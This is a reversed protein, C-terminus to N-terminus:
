IGLTDMIYLLSSVEETVPLQLLTCYCCCGCCLRTRQAHSLSLSLSHSLPPPRYLRTFSPISQFSYLLFAFPTFFCLISSISIIPSYYPLTVASTCECHRIMLPEVAKTPGQDRRWNRLRKKCVCQLEKSSNDALRLAAGQVFFLDSLSYVCMCINMIQTPNSGVIGSNSRAFVIWANSRTAVM